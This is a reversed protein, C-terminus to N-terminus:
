HTSTSGELKQPLPFKREFPGPEVSKRLAPIKNINYTDGFHQQGHSTFGTHAGLPSRSSYQVLDSYSDDFLPDYVQVERAYFFRLGSAGLGVTDQHFGHVVVAHTQHSSSGIVSIYPHDSCIEHKVQSWSLPGYTGASRTGNSQLVFPPSYSFGLVDMIQEPWRPTQCAIRSEGVPFDCCTDPRPTDQAMNEALECQSPVPPEKSYYVYETVIHTVAAWCWSTTGKQREQGIKLIKSPLEDCRLADSFHKEPQAVVPLPLSLALFAYVVLLPGLAKM